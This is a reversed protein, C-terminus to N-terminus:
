QKKKPEAKYKKVSLEREYSDYASIIKRVLHHRVVDRDSFRFIGIGEINELIKDVCRYITDSHIVDV